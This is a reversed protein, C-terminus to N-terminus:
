GHLKGWSERWRNHPDYVSVPANNTTAFLAAMSIAEEIPPDFPATSFLQDNHALVRGILVGNDAEVVSILIPTTGVDKDGIKKFFTV